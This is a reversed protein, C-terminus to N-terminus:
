DIMLVHKTSLIESITVIVVDPIFIKYEITIIVQDHDNIKPM